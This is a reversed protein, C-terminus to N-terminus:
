RDVEFNSRVLAVRRKNVDSEARILAVMDLRNNADNAAGFLFKTSGTTKFEGFLFM